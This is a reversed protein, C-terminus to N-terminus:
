PEERTYELLSRTIMTDCWLVGDAGCSPESTEDHQSCESCRETPDAPDAPEQIQGIADIRGCVPTPDVRQDTAFIGHLHIEGTRHKFWAAGDWMPAGSDDSMRDPM